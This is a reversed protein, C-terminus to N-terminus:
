NGALEYYFAGPKSNARQRAALEDDLADLQTLISTLRPFGDKEFPLQLQRWRMQHIETRKITLAHVQEAQQMMPTDLKALNM